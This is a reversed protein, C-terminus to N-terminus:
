PAPEFTFGTGGALASVMSLTGDAKIEATDLFPLLSFYGQELGSATSDCTGGTAPM